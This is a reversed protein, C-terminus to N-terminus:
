PAKGTRDIDEQLAILKDLMGRLLQPEITVGGFDAQRFVGYRARDGEALLRVLRLGNPAVLLEKMRLDAFLSPVHAVAIELPLMAAPDDSRLVADEPFGAPTAISHPLFDFNSFTTPGAPRMMLDFTATFPQPRVLTVMLWLSPLKRLALTDAVTRISVTHGRYTGELRHMGAAESPRLKADTLLPTVASFLRAPEDRVAARRRQFDRYLLYLLLVAVATAVFTMVPVWLAFPGGSRAM